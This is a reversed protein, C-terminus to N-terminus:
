FLAIRASIISIKGRNRIIPETYYHDIGTREKSYYGGYQIIQFAEQKLMEYYTSLYPEPLDKTLLRSTGIFSM